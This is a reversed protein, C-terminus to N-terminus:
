NKNIVIYKEIFSNVMKHISFKNEIIQKGKSGMMKAKEQNRLLYEIKEAIIDPRQQPVLFGCLNDVVLEKTGGGNTVIVPKELAMYEMISNSIGETYTCLVGINFINIISEIKSQGELFKIQSRNKPLIIEKYKGYKGSGICLFTVDNRKELVIQVAQIYTTYDKTNSFTAVMGIVYKTNINFTRRIKNEPVLNELRNFNFGNYIVCSKKLPANYALIGDMSNSIILDSFPFTLKHSLIGKNVKDPANAIQNNIMPIKLIFKAPIAYIAVMNGWVHIIDPKFKKCIKFFKYFLSPDKKIYKREIIDIDIDLDFIEKYYIVNKALVLKFEFEKLKSLCKLLELLRREKGGETLSEIFFLTKM